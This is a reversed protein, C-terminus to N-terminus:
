KNKLTLTDTLWLIDLSGALQISRMRANTGLVFENKLYFNNKEFILNKGLFPKILNIDINFKNM